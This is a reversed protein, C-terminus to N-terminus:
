YYKHEVAAEVVITEEGSQFFHGDFFKDGDVAVIFISFTGATEILQIRMIRNRLRELVDFM